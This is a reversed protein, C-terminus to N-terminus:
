PPDFGNGGWPNCRVIRKIGMWAGRWPGHKTVAQLMYESCTPTYRCQGGIFHKLTARYLMVLFVILKSMARSPM